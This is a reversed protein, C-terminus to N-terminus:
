CCIGRALRACPRQIWPREKMAQLPSSQSRSAGSDDWVAVRKLVTLDLQWTVRADVSVALHGHSRWQNLVATASGLDGAGGGRRTDVVGDGRNVTAANSAV